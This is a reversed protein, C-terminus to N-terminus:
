NNLNNPATSSSSSSTSSTTSSSSGGLLNILYNLDNFNVSLTSDILNGPTTDYSLIISYDASYATPAIVVEGRNVINNSISSGLILNNESDFLKIGLIEDPNLNPLNNFNFQSGGVQTSEAIKVNTHIYWLEAKQITVRNVVISLLITSSSINQKLVIQGTGELLGEIRLSNYSTTCSVNNPNSLVSWSIRNGLNDVSNINITVDSGVNFELDSESATFTYSIPPSTTIPSLDSINVESLITNLGSRLQLKNNSIALNLSNIKDEINTFNTDLAESLEKVLRRVALLDEINILAM